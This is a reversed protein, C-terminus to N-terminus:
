NLVDKTIGIQKIARAFSEDILVEGETSAAQNIGVTRYIIKKGSLMERIIAKAKEGTAATFPSMQKRISDQMNGQANKMMDSYAVMNKGLETNPDVNTPPMAMKPTEPALYIPTEDPSITWAKNGDVRIQVTGTPIRFKGGSRVGFIIEGERRGVFPYYRMSETVGGWGILRPIEEGITVMQSLSDDFRDVHETVFWLETPKFGACSTLGVVLALMIFVKRM